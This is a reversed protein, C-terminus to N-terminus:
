FNAQIFQSWSPSNQPNAHRCLRGLGLAHIGRHAHLAPLPQTDARGPQSSPVLLPIPRHTDTCGGSVIAAPLAPLLFGLSLLPALAQPLSHVIRPAISTTSLSMQIKLLFVTEQLIHLFYFFKLNIKKLNVSQLLNIGSKM